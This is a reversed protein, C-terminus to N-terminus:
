SFEIRNGSHDYAKYESSYPKLGAEEEILNEIYTGIEFFFPKLLKINNEIGTQYQISIISASDDGKNIHMNNKVACDLAYTNNNVKFSFYFTVSEINIPGFINEHSEARDINTINTHNIAREIKDLDQHSRYSSTYYLWYDEASNNEDSSICGSSLVPLLLM